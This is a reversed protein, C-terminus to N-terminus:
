TDKGDTIQLLSVAEDLFAPRDKEALRRVALGILQDFLGQVADVGIANLSPQVDVGTLRARRELVLRVTRIAELDGAEVKPWASRILDDTVALESKRFAEVSPMPPMDALAKQVMKHAQQRSIGLDVGIAAYTWGQRKLEFARDRRVAATLRRPSTESEGKGQRGAM